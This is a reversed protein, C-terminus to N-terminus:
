VKKLKIVKRLMGNVNDLLNKAEILDCSKVIM